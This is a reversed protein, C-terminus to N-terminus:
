RVTLEVSARQPLIMRGSRRLALLDVTIQDGPARAQLLRAAAIVDTPVMQDLALLVQGRQIGLREAESGRDVGAILLGDTTLLGMRQALERTIEQVSLGTKQRVLTANFVSAEPVLRVSLTLPTAGRRVELQVARRDGNELLLRHFDILGRPRTENVRLVEDGLRLGARDAPSELEVGAVSLTSGAPRLRAGFWLRESGPSLIEMLAESLRRVPVAFGIGQGERYIAVSLGILEGRLNVLPGGSNGPNIAADTQLWDEVGLPVNEIAPRRSKSSLIGRSVSGGLGFPNGLAIVTEGLLLDDDAAFKVARFVEGPEAKLRLLAVDSGAAGAVREAEYVGGGAEDTLKVWISTARRVVHDNTLIYGTEDIIVGSGLSYQTQAPRRRYYPGWFERLLSEFPDRVEIVTETGINVVSPMVQAIAQVTADRRVDDDGRGAATGDLGTGWWLAGTWFLVRPASRFWTLVRHQM